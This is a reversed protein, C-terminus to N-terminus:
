QGELTNMADVTVQLTGDEALEIFKMPFGGESPPEKEKPKSKSKFLNM